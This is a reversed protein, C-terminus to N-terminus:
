LVSWANDRHLNIRVLNTIYDTLTAYGDAGDSFLGSSGYIYSVVADYLDEGNVLSSAFIGLLTDLQDSGVNFNTLDILTLYCAQHIETSEYGNKRSLVTQYM